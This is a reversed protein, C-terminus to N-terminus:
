SIDNGDDKTRCSCIEEPSPFVALFLTQHASIQSSISVAITITPVVELIGKMKSTPPSIPPTELNNSAAVVQAATQDCKDANTTGTPRHVSGCALERKNATALSATLLDTQDHVSGISAYMNATISQDLAAISVALSAITVLFGVLVFAFGLIAIWTACWERKNRRDLWFGTLGQPSARDFRAELALLRHKYFHFNSVRRSVTEMKYKWEGWVLRPIKVQHQSDRDIRCVPHDVGQKTTMNENRLKNFWIMSNVDGPMLLGLTKLTEFALDRYPHGGDVDSFNWLEWLISVHHFVYVTPVFHTNGSSAFDEMYLHQMLDDTWLINFSTLIAMNALTFSNSFGRRDDPGSADELKTLFGGYCPNTTIADTLDSNQGTRGLEITYVDRTQPPLIANQIAEELTQEDKWFFEYDTYITSPMSGIMLALSTAANISHDIRKPNDVGPLRPELTALKAAISAKTIRRTSSQAAKIVGIVDFLDGFTEM